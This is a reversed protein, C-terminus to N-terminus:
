KRLRLEPFVSPTSTSAPRCLMRPCRRMPTPWGSPTTRAKWGMPLEFPFISHFRDSQKAIGHQQCCQTSRGSQRKRGTALGGVGSGTGTLAGASAGWNTTRESNSYLHYNLATAGGNGMTRATDSGSGGASLGITYALGSSCQVKFTTAGLTDSSSTPDYADFSLGTSATSAVCVGSITTSVGFTTTVSAAQSGSACAFVTYCFLTNRVLKGLPM